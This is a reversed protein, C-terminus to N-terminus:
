DPSGEQQQSSLEFARRLDGIWDPDEGLGMAHFPMIEPLDNAAGKRKVPLVIFSVASSGKSEQLTGAAIANVSTIEPMEVRSDTALPNVKWEYGPDINAAVTQHPGEIRWQIESIGAISGLRLKGEWPELDSSVIYGQHFTMSEGNADPAVLKIQAVVGPEVTLNVQSEPKGERWEPEPPRPLHLSGFAVGMEEWKEMLFRIWDIKGGRGVVANELKVQELAIAPIGPIVRPRVVVRLSLTQSLDERSALKVSGEGPIPFGLKADRGGTWVWEADLDFDLVPADGIWETNRSQPRFSSMMEWWGGLEGDGSDFRRASLGLSGKWEKDDAAIVFGQHDEIVEVNGVADTRVLEVTAVLGPAVTLELDLPILDNEGTGSGTGGSSEKPLESNSVDDLYESPFEEGYFRDPPGSPTLIHSAALMVAPGALVLGASVLAPRGLGPHLRVGDDDSAVGGAWRRLARVMVVGLLIQPVGLFLMVFFPGFSAGGGGPATLVLLSSSVFGALLFPWAVTSFISAGLGLKQGGSRRVEVLARVGFFWGLLAPIGVVFFTFGLILTRKLAFSYDEAVAAATGPPPSPPSSKLWSIMPIVVILAAVALLLSAGTIIASTTSFRAHQDSGSTVSPQKPKALGSQSITEVETRVDEASQYRAEREKALTRLVIEDIREDIGSKESPLSFRGLPLEGTLMEYLVVGLSYIDARQDVDGPTEIQEPAMYQPSGLISGELTLTVDSPDKQGVLKAIGFDAIKVRGKSDILVNEPKIDRHLIGEGHAFQLASCIEQVLALAEAPSFGGTRLAQRLNVGDVYEMILYCYPGATGFDHVGVINPHSLKALVRAERSFRETFSPDGALEESLIKIAVTRDLQPQRAKYVAGMGGVGLLEEIELDPFHPALESVSHPAKRRGGTATPNPITAAGELVCAPCLGGPAEAPIPSGCQPCTTDQNEEM